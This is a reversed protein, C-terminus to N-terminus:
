KDEFLQVISKAQSNNIQEGQVVHMNVTTLDNIQAQKALRTAGELTVEAEVDNTNIRARQHLEGYSDVVINTEPIAQYKGKSVVNYNGLKVGGSGNEEYLGEYKESRQNGQLTSLIYVHPDLKNNDQAAQQMAPRVAATVEQTSLNNLGQRRMGLLTENVTSEDLGLEKLAAHSEKENSSMNASTVQQFFNPKVKNGLKDVQQSDMSKKMAYATISARQVSEGVGAQGTIAKGVTNGINAGFIAGQPGAIVGGAVAGALTGAGEVSKKVPSLVKEKGSAFSERMQSLQVSGKSFIDFIRKRLIFLTLLMMFQLVGATIFGILSGDITNLGYIIETLGFLFITMIVLGIKIFLPICLEFFYRKLVGFQEPLASWLLAFPAVMALLMFWFQCLIMSLALLLVPISNIANIVLAVCVFILREVLNSSHLTYNGYEEIEKLAVENREQSKPKKSLLEEIRENGIADSETTSYQLMLYPVHVFSNFINDYMLTNTTAGDENIEPLLLLSLDNSMSNMGQLFGSFNSFILLSITFAIISQAITGFAAIKERKTIFQWLAYIVVIVCIVGITGGFLGSASFNGGSIGTFASVTAGIREILQGLIDSDNMSFNMIGILVNTLFVNVMFIGDVFKFLALDILKAGEGSLTDFPNFMWDTVGSEESDVVIDLEYYVNKNKYKGYTDTDYVPDVPTKDEYEAAQVQYPLLLTFLLFVWIYAQKMCSGGYIVININKYM